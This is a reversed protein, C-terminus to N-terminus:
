KFPDSRRVPDGDHGAIVVGINTRRLVAEDLRESMIRNAVSGRAAISRERRESPATWQRQNSYRRRDRGRRQHCGSPKPLVLKRRQLPQEARKGGLLKETHQQDM